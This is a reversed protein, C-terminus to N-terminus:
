QYLSATGYDKKKLRSEIGTIETKLSAHPTSIMWDKELAPITKTKIGTIM